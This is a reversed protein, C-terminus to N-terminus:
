VEIDFLSIFFERLEELDAEPESDRTVGELRLFIEWALDSMDSLGEENISRPSFFDAEVHIVHEWEANRSPLYIADLLLSTAEGAPLWGNWYFWPNCNGEEDINNDLIWFNGEPQGLANWQAITMIGNFNYVTVDNGLVGRVANDRLTETLFHTNEGTGVRFELSPELTRRATHEVRGENVLEVIDERVITRILYDEVTRPVFADVYVYEDNEDLIYEGEDDTARVQVVLLEGDADVELAWNHSGDGHGTQVGYNFFDEAHTMEAENFRGYRAESAIADVGRGTAESMMFADVHAFLDPVAPDIHAEDLVREIAQNFTPMFYKTENHGLTWRIGYGEPQDGHLVAIDTGERPTNVDTDESCYMAWTSVDQIDMGDIVPNGGVSLFESLRVRVFIDRQGFNEAFVDKNHNGSGEGDYEDRIRGGYNGDEWASNFARQSFSNWAFTGTFLMAAVLIAALSGVRKKYFTYM